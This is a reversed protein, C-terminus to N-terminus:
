IRCTHHARSLMSAGEANKRKRIILCVWFLIWVEGHAIPAPSRAPLRLRDISRNRFLVISHLLINKEAGIASRGYYLNPLEDSRIGFHILHLCQCGNGTKRGRRDRNAGQQGRVAGGQVVGERGQRRANEWLQKNNQVPLAKNKWNDTKTPKKTFALTHVLMNDDLM